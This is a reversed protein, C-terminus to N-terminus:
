KRAAPSHEGDTLKGKTALYVDLFDRGMTPPPQVASQRGESKLREHLTRAARLGPSETRKETGNRRDIKIRDTDGDPWILTRATPAPPIFNVMGSTSLAAYVCDRGGTIGLVGFATEIGECVHAVPGPAGLRVSGGAETYSGLGLKPHSVPAKQGDDTVYIRWIALFRGDDPAQVASILGPWRTVADSEPDRHEISRVARLSRFGGALGIGRGFLYRGAPTDATIPTGQQWIEHALERVSKTRRAEAADREARKQRWEAEREARERKVAEDSKRIRNRDDDPMRVGAMRACEEVADPFSWGEVLMLFTFVDGNRNSSFDFFAEKRTNVYFSPSREANFPSLGCLERGAKKLKVYRSAVDAMPLRAKVEDLFSQDFKM